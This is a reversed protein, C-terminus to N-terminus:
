RPLDITITLGGDAGNAASIRGDHADAVWQAVALGLGSGGHRRGEASQYGSEFLRALDAEAVGPGTDAVSIHANTASTTLSLRIDGTEPAHKVANDILALLAQQLWSADVPAIVPADPVEQVIAIGSSRAFPEALVAVETVLMTLDVPARAITLRGDEAKALTLLDDLRRRVFAGNAAVHGLSDILQAPDASGRLGVEAEALMVTIPTRLEHGIQAFIARRSRDIEALRATRAAVESELATRQGITQRAMAFGILAIILPAAIAIGTGTRRLARMEAITEVSEGRERAAIIRVRDRFGAIAAPDADVRDFDEQLARGRAAEEQQGTLRPGETAISWRYRAIDRRIASQLAPRDAPPAGVMANLDAELRTVVALQDQSRALREILADARALGLALTLAIGALVILAALAALTLARDTRVAGM